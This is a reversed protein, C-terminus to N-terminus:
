RGAADPGSSAAIPPRALLPDPLDKGAVLQGAMLAAAYDDRGFDALRAHAELRWAGGDMNALRAASLVAAIEPPLGVLDHDDILPPTAVAEFMGHVSAGSADRVRIDYLGSLPAIMSSVVREEGIQFTWPPPGLAEDDNAADVPSAGTPPKSADVPALTVTFPPKGGIWGLNFRRPAAVLRQRVPGDLLPMALPPPAAPKLVVPRRVAVLRGHIGRPPPPPKPVPPQLADNWENLALGIPELADPLPTTRRARMTLVTPSNTAMVTWRRPGDRPMIEIECDGKAVVQDGVLLDEWYRAPSVKRGRLILCDSTRGDIASVYGAIPAAARFAAHRLPATARVPGETAAAGGAALTGIALAMVILRLM